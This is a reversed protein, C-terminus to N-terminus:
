ERTKIGFLVFLFTEVIGKLVDGSRKVAVRAYSMFIHAYIGDCNVMENKYEGGVSEIRNEM